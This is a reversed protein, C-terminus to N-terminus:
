EAPPNNFMVNKSNSSFSLRFMYFLAYVIPFHSCIVRWSKKRRGVSFKKVDHSLSQQVSARVGDVFKSRKELVRSYPLELEMLSNPDKRQGHSFQDGCMLIIDQCDVGDLQRRTAAQAWEDHQWWSSTRRRRPVDDDEQGVVPEQPVGQKGGVRGRSPPM